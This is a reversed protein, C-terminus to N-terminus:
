QQSVVKQRYTDGGAKVSIIYVMNDQPLDVITEVNNLEQQCVLQGSVNYVEVSRNKLQLIQESVKIIAKQQIAYIIINNKSVSKPEDEIGTTLSPKFLLEFRDKSENVLPTFTYTPTERLNVTVIEDTGKDVLYVDMNPKFNGINSARFTFDSMGDSSVSYGLPVVSETLLEPLANISIDKSDKLSYVNVNNGGSMLKESDFKSVFDSGFEESVLIVSEDTNNSGGLTFRFINDNEVLTTKLSGSGHVRTTNSINIADNAVYTRLWMAQGPAVYRSGGLLGVNTLINYTSVENDGKRIYVTKLFDGIDFGADEVDMYSPYPNAVLYWRAELNSMAYAADNKFTGSYSLVGSNATYLSYGELEKGADDLVYSDSYINSFGVVREWGNSTVDKGVYRNIAYRNTGFSADYESQDVGKVPHGIQWWNLTTFDSWNYTVEGSGLEAGNIIVSSPSSVSNNVVFEHTNADGDDNITLDGVVTFQSGPNLTLSSGGNVVLSYVSATGSIIAPNSNAITVQSSSSPVIGGSWNGAVFWDTSITGLWSFAPISISGFTYYNGGGFENFVEFASTEVSGSSTNGLPTNIGVESWAETALNTWEVVRFDTDDPDVGSLNDWNLTVKATETDPGLVNWYEGHSVYAVSGIVSSVDYSDDSPNHSYFQAQWTEPTGDLGDTLVDIPLYRNQDGLPFTFSTGDSIVKSMPGQVYSSTGGGSVATSITNTVMLGGGGDTYIVGDTLTLINSIEINNSVTVGSANNIEFNYFEGGDASVFDATGSIDQLTSGNIIVNALNNDFSGSTFVVDGKLNLDQGVYAQVTPGNITLDGYVTVGETPYNPLARVGSGVFTLNNVVSTESLISESFAGAYELTGGLPSVFNTYVGAPLSGSEVSLTGTGSVTGLRHNQTTGVEMRGTGQIYTAYAVREDNNVTVTTGDAVYVIAGNPFASGNESTIKTEPDYFDWTAGNTWNGNAVSIFAQVDYSVSSEGATFDGDIDADTLYVGANNFDINLLHNSEDYSNAEEYLNVETGGLEFRVGIYDSTTGVEDSPDAQMSIDGQFGTIGEADLTWNYQLVHDLDTGSITVHPENAAKVRISGTSNGNAVVNITVPTYLGFSGVPYIFSGLETSNYTKNIGADTFSLNTQIMNNSTFDPYTAGYDFVAGNTIEMLNRGIDFVGDELKLVGTITIASSQSPMVVGASNDITLNQYSGSGSVSQSGGTSNLVIGDGSSSLTSGNNVVDGIVNVVNGGTNLIGSSIILDNSIDIDSGSSLTNGSSLVFNYFNNTGSGTILQDSSGNFYITNNSANYTGNNIYDGNVYLDLGNADFSTNLGITLSGDITHTITKLMAINGTGGTITFDNLEETAYVVFTEDTVSSGNLTFGSGAGYIVTEPDFYLTPVTTSGNSRNIVVQDGIAQSFSSGVGLIEFMGRTIYPASVTGVSLSGGNQVLQIIGENNSLSRSIQGGVILSGSNSVELYAQGSATYVINSNGSSGGSAITGDINATGGNIIFSGELKLDSDGSANVTGQTVYLKSGQPIDYNSGGTTLDINIGSNNLHCEGSSLILAKTTTNTSGNLNFGSNLTLSQGVSKNIEIRNFDVTGSANTYTVSETGEFVVNASSFDIIGSTKNINGKLYINSEYGNADNFEGGLVNIDGDVGFYRNSNNTTFFTLTGGTLNVDGGVTIIEGRYAETRFVGSEVTLDGNVIIDDAAGSSFVYGRIEGSTNIKLNPYYPILSAPPLYGPNCAGTYEITATSNNCFETHDGNLIVFLGEYNPSHLWSGNQEYILTGGGKIIDITGSAGDQVSLTGDIQVQSAVASGALTVTHGAQIVAIDSSTPIGSNLDQDLWCSGSNWTYNGQSTYIKVGAIPIKGKGNDLGATYDSNILTTYQANGLTYDFYLTKDGNGYKTDGITWDYGDLYAAKLNKLDESSTFQLQVHNNELSEFGSVKTKWYYNLVGSPTTTSPHYSHVPVVTLYGSTEVSQGAFSNVMLTSYDSTSTGVHYTALTAATTPVTFGLTLGGDSANGATYFYSDGDANSVSGTATFNYIGMNVKGSAGNVFEFDQVNVDTAISMGGNGNNLRINGFNFERGYKGKLVPSSGIFEIGGVGTSTLDGDAIKVSDTVMPWYDVVDFGGRELDVNGTVAINNGAVSMTYYSGSNPHRDKNITLGSGFTFTGGTQNNIIGDQDGTFALGGSQNYTGAINFDGGVTVDYGNDEFTAGAGISLDNTINLYSPNGVNGYQDIIRISENGVGQVVSLNYIPQVSYIDFTGTSLTQVEVTGDTFSYNEDAVAIYFDGQWHNNAATFTIQGGSMNFSFTSKDMLFTPCEYIDSSQAFFHVEGGSQVYSYLSGGYYNRIQTLYLDGGEVNVEPALDNQTGFAIGDTGSPTTFSGSSVKLTGFLSLGKWGGSSSATTVSAGNIWLCGSSPISFENPADGAISEGLRDITIGVGLELTGNEIVVPLRQWGQVGDESDTTTGDVSGYLNFLNDSIANITLNYTKDTGKDIFLRYVDTRGNIVMVNNTAGKFKLKVAGGTSETYQPQRAFDVLGNNTFDGYVNLWHYNGTGGETMRAGSSINIDGFVNVTRQIGSTHGIKFRGVKVYLSGNIDLNRDIRVESNEDPLDVEVNFFDAIGNSLTIGSSGYFVITGEGKGKTVFDSDDGIVPYNDGAMLLRGNGKLTAIGNITFTAMDLDGYISVTGLSTTVNETLTVIKGSPIVINDNIAPVGGGKPVTIAAAPDQTWNTAVNWAGTNKLYWTTQANVVNGIGFLLFILISYYINKM